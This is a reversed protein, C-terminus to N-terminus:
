FILCSLTDRTLLIFINISYNFKKEERYDIKIDIFLIKNTIPSLKCNERM